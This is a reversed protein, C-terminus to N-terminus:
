GGLMALMAEPDQFPGADAAGGVTIDGPVTGSSLMRRGDLQKQLAAAWQPNQQFAQALRQQRIQDARGKTLMMEATPAQLGESERWQRPTGVTSRMAGGVIATGLMQMLINGPISRGWLHKLGPGVNGSGIAKM